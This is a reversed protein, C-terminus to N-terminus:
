QQVLPLKSQEQLDLQQLLSQQQELRRLQLITEILLLVMILTDTNLLLVVTTIMYEQKRLIISDSSTALVLTVSYLNRLLLKFHSSYVKALMIKRIDKQSLELLPSYFRDKKQISLSLSQLVLFNRSHVLDLTYYLLLLQQIEALKSCDKLQNQLLLLKQLVVLHELQELVLNLLTLQYYRIRTTYRSLVVVTGTLHLSILLVLTQESNSCVM